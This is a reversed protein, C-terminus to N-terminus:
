KSGSQLGSSWCSYETVMSVPRRERALMVALTNNTDTGLSMCIAAQQALHQSCVKDALRLRHDHWGAGILREVCM